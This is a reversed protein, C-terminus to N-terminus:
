GPVHCPSTLTAPFFSGDVFSMTGYVQLRGGNCHASVYGATRGGRKWTKGITAEALTAGGYGEAIPPLEIKAQYGYRGHKIREISFPVLLAKPAPLTEYAHAILSPKGGQPPANFFTLPSSVKTVPQGPLAVEAHGTGEGVIAGPCRKRAQEPTTEALKALSCVPLGQTDIKGNGDFKFNLQKLMPPPGGKTGIRIVSSLSVPQNGKAPLTRPVITATASVTTKGIEIKVAQAVGVALLGVLVTGALVKFLTRRM